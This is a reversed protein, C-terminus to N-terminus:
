IESKSKSFGELQRGEGIMFLEFETTKVKGCFTRQFNEDILM